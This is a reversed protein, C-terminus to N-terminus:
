SRKKIDEFTKVYKQHHKLAKKCWHILLATRDASNLQWAVGQNEMKHRCTHLFIAAAVSINFSETFGYMPINVQFDSNQLVYDSVGQKETGFVLAFPRDVPMDSVTMSARPTTAAIAYGKARLADICDKTNNSHKNFRHLNLWKSSGREVDPNYEWPNRNEIIYVDQVGFCDCTRMVASTNQPQYLDELVVTMQRTRKDVLENFIALKNETVYTSLFKLLDDQM